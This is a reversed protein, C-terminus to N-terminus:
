SSNGTTKLSVKGLFTRLDLFTQDIVLSYTMSADATKFRHHKDSQWTDVTMPKDYRKTDRLVRAEGLICGIMAQIGACNIHAGDIAPHIPVHVVVDFVM